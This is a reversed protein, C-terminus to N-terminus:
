SQVASDPRVRWPVPQPPAAPETDLVALFAMRWQDLSTRHDADSRFHRDLLMRFVASVADPRLDHTNECRLRAATTERISETVADLLQGQYRRVTPEGALARRAARRKEDFPTTRREAMLELVQTLAVLPPTDFPAERYFTLIDAVVDGSFLTAEKTPFYRFFTRPAVAAAAAIQTTTTAAIGQAEFLLLAQEQIKLRTQALAHHRLNM